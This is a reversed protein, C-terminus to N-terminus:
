STSPPIHYASVVTTQWQANYQALTWYVHYRNSTHADVHQGDTTVIISQHNYTGDTDWDYYVLDGQFAYSAVNAGPAIGYYSAANSTGPLYSSVFVFNDQAAPWSHTWLWRRAYKMWWYNDTYGATRMNIGGNYIAQSAFNTCDEDSFVPWASNYNSWYQDAYSAAAGGNYALAAHTPALAGILAVTLMVAAALLKSM